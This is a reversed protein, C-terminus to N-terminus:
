FQRDSGYAVYASPRRIASRYSRPTTRVEKHFVSTFHSQSVFGLELAIEALPLTTKELLVRAREIKRQMVFRYPSYGISRRFLRTFQNTGTQAVFVRNQRTPKWAKPEAFAAM